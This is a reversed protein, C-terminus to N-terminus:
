FVGLAEEKTVYVEFITIFGSVEFVELIGEQLNCLVFKGNLKKLAKLAVLFVRLGSSSVYDLASCDVLLSRKGADILKNFESELEAFNTTNLRGKIEIITCSEHKKTTIEM